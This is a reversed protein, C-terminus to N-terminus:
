LGALDVKAPELAELKAIVKAGLISEYEDPLLAVAKVLQTKVADDISTARSLGQFAESYGAVLKELKDGSIGQMRVAIADSVLQALDSDFWAAISERTMASSANEVAMAELVASLAVVSDAFQMAGHKKCHATALKSRFSNVADILWILGAPANLIAQMTNVSFEPVVASTDSKGKKGDMRGISIIVNGAGVETISSTKVAIAM